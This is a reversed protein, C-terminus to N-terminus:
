VMKKETGPLMYLEIYQYRGKEFLRVAEKVYNENSSWLKLGFTLVRSM